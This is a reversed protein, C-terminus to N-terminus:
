TSQKGLDVALQPVTTLTTPSALTTIELEGNSIDEKIENEVNLESVVVTEDIKDRNVDINKDNDPRVTHIRSRTRISYSEVDSARPIVDGQMVMLLLIIIGIIIFIVRKDIFRIM